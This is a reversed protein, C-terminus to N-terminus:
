MIFTYGGVHLVGVAINAIHTYMWKRIAENTIWVGVKVKM